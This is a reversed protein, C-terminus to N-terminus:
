AVRFRALKAEDVEIGLGPGTLPLIAGDAFPFPESIVDDEFYHGGVKCPHRGAPASMPIVGPMSVAPAALAFQVNAANGIASEISGNVDCALGAAEAVAAVRMAGIFGGAKALYISIRDAGRAAVVQQADGIDWCSEDAIVPIPSHATVEAMGALSRSPQEVCDAGAEALRAVWRRADGGAGYGQNADLRLLVEPGFERRLRGILRVDRAPDVGGKIQLAGLGDAIAAIAEEVADDEPMLGVMHAIPVSDRVAGGLLRHVPLGVKKGWADFLAMEVACKAYSNGVAARDMARRAATVATADTGILVPALVDEILTIVTRLTEGARRGSEGGWDPLPVAEGYGVIGDETRVRVLVFNGLAGRLGAWKFDRRVPLRYPFSEIAVIKM